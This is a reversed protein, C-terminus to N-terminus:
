LIIEEKFAEDALGWGPAGPVWPAHTKLMTLYLGRNALFDSKPRGTEAGGREHDQHYICIPYKLAVQKMGAALPSFCLADPYAYHPGIEPYGRLQSWARKPMLFFDGAANMYPPPYPFFKIINKAYTAMRWLNRGGWWHENLLFAAGYKNQVSFTNKASLTLQTEPDMSSVLAGRSVDHRDVRYFSNEKLVEKGFYAGLAESFLLDTNTALVYQGKARRAGVNKAYYEFFVQKPPHPLAEHIRAPVEIIRVSGSSLARPWRLANKLGLGGSPPNWEVIILEARIRYKEWLYFQNNIFIQFRPLFDEGYNDNRGAVVISLYPNNPM